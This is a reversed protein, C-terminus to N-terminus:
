EQYSCSPYHSALKKFYDQSLLHLTQVTPMQSIVQSSIISYYRCLNIISIAIAIITTTYITTISIGISYNNTIITINHFYNNFHSHTTKLPQSLKQNHVYHTLQHQSYYSCLYSM